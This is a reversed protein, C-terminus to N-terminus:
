QPVAIGTDATIGLLLLDASGFSQNHPGLMWLVPM